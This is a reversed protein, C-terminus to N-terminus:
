SQIISIPILARRRVQCTQALKTLSLCAAERVNRRLAHAEDTLRARADLFVVQADQTEEAKVGGVTAALGVAVAQMGADFAAGPEIM